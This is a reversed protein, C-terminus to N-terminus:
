AVAGRAFAPSVVRSYWEPLGAVGAPDTIEVEVLGFYAIVVWGHEAPQPRLKCVKRDWYESEKRYATRAALIAEDKSM